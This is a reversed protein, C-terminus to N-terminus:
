AEGWGASNLWANDEEAMALIRENEDRADKDNECKECQARDGHIDTSGCPIQVEKYHYGHAVFYSVMNNCM